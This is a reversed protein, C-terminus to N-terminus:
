PVHAAPIGRGADVRRRGRRAARHRVPRRPRAVARRAPRRDAVFRAPSRLSVGREFGATAMAVRWGQNVEGLTNEVPVHVDDFFIEAFGTDGDLQAIPRVTVGPRDLPVLMFTLGRHRESEPDTRFIGFCWDAWVAGRHGSRRATSCGSADTTPSGGPPRPPPSTPAPTRSAGRRPGCSRARRWRRAPVAGEAGAHRGGHDHARPPLHREPERPGPSGARWYEEEFILWHIYDAGTRRVGGAVVGGVLRGPSSRRGSGTSPSARETDFSPCRARRPRQGRAVGAGRRPVDAPRFHRTPGRDAATRRRRTLRGRAVARRVGPVEALRRRSRRREDDPGRPRM